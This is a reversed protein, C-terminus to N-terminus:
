RCDEIVRTVEAWAPVYLTPLGATEVAFRGRTLAMADLLPDSARLSIALYPNTDELQYATVLRESTETLIRSPVPQAASGPRLLAIERSSRDCSLLLLPSNEDGGFRAMSGAATAGYRWDGPTQPADIWNTNSPQQVVPPPTPTPVPAPQVVPPAPLPAPAPVCAVLAATAALPVFRLFRRVSTPRSQM